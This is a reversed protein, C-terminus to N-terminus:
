IFTPNLPTYIARVHKGSIYEKLGWNKEPSNPNLPTYMVRVHKGSPINQLVFFSRLLHCCYNVTDKNNIIKSYKKKNINVM